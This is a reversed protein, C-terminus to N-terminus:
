VTFTLYSLQGLEQHLNLFRSCGRDARIQPNTLFLNEGGIENIISTIEEKLFLKLLSALSGLSDYLLSKRKPDNDELVGWLDDLHDVTSAKPGVALRVLRHIDNTIVRRSDSCLLNKVVCFGNASFDAVSSKMM